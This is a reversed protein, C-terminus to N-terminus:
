DSSSQNAPRSIRALLGGVTLALAIQPAIEGRQVCGALGSAISVTLRGAALDRLSVPTDRFRRALGGALTVRWLWPHIANVELSNPECIVSRLSRLPREGISNGAHQVYDQLSEDVVVVHGVWSAVVGLWHDHIASPVYPPFPVAQDCVDRRLVVFCGSMQNLMLLSFPGVQRRETYGILREYEDVVRAQGMAASVESSLLPVLRELKDAYWYDDQDCLAVWRASPSVRRLLREFNKYVGVNLDFETIHFRSDDGVLRELMCRAERDAGDIGLHATWNVVTQRKLSELQRRLLDESPRYVAMVIAGLTSNDFKAECATAPAPRCIKSTM